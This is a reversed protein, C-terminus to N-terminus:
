ASDAVQEASLTVADLRSDAVHQLSEVCGPVGDSAALSFALSGEDDDSGSDNPVMGAIAAPALTAAKSNIAPITQLYENHPELGAPASGTCVCPVPLAACAVADEIGALDARVLFDFGGGGGGPIMIATELGVKADGAM